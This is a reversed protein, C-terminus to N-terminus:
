SRPFAMTVVAGGGLRYRQKVFGGHAHVILAAVYLGYELRDFRLVRQRNLVGDFDGDSRAAGEPLRMARCLAAVGAQTDSGLAARDAVTERIARARAEDFVPLGEEGARSATEFAASRAPSVDAPRDDSVVVDVRDAYSRVAVQVIGRKAIYSASAELVLKVAMRVLVADAVIPSDPEGPELDIVKDVLGSRVDDVAALVENRVNCLPSPSQEMGRQIRGMMLRGRASEDSVLRELFLLRDREDADTAMIADGIVHLTDLATTASAVMSGVFRSRIRTVQMVQIDSRHKAALSQRELALAVEDAVLDLFSRDSLGLPRKCSVALVGELGEPSMLPLYLIDSAEHTDTGAGAEEGNAFVWHAVAQETLKEFEEGYFDGPADRVMLARRDRESSGPEAFPDRLYIGVSRGFLGLCVGLAVDAVEAASHAYLLSRNLDFLAQTRRERQTARVATRGLRAGALALALTLVSFLVLAYLSARHDVALSGFPRLGLYDLSAAALLSAVVAPLYSRTVFAAAVAATLLLPYAVTEAAGLRYLGRLLLATLLVTVVAFVLGKWNVGSPAVRSWLPARGSPGQPDGAVVHVNISPLSEILRESFSPLFSALLRRLGSVSRREVVVDAAGQTRLYDVVVSAADHGYLTTLEHGMAEVRERLLGYEHEALNRGFAPREDLVCAVELDAGAADAILSAELLVRAPSPGPEVVAVVRPGVPQDKPRSEKALDRAATAAHESVCRLAIVRLGALVEETMDIGVARQKVILEVPDIDVFELQDAEYLMYDPVLEAPVEVGLSSVHDRENQLDTVLLTAYVDIGARLLEEADQYRMRNRSGVPNVQALSGLVAVDPRRKLIRDVDFPQAPGAEATPQAGQPEVLFVDRGSASLGKAEDVMAPSAGSCRAYAFFLKLSGYPAPSAGTGGRAGEGAGTSGFGPRSM